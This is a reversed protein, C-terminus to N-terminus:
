AEHAFQLVRGRIRLKQQNTVGDPSTITIIVVDENRACQVKFGTVSVKVPTKASVILSTVTKGKEDSHVVSLKWYKGNLYVSHISSFIVVDRDMYEVHHSMTGVDSTDKSLSLTSLIDPTIERGNLSLAIQDEM